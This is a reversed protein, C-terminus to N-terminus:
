WNPAGCCIKVPKADQNRCRCQKDYTLWLKCSRQGDGLSTCQICKQPSKGRISNQWTCFESQKWTKCERINAANSCLMGAAPMLWVKRRLVFFPIVSSKCLAGAVSHRLFISVEWGGDIIEVTTTPNWYNKTCINILLYAISLHTQYAVEDTITCGKGQSVKLGRLIV